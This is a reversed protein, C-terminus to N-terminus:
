ERGTRVKENILAEQVSCGDLANFFAELDKRLCVIRGGFKKFPLTRRAIRSRVAKESGRFWCEAVATIDMVEGNM